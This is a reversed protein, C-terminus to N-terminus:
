QERSFGIDYNQLSVLLEHENHLQLMPRVWFCNQNKKTKTTISPVFFGSAAMFLSNSEEEFTYLVVYQVFDRFQGNM